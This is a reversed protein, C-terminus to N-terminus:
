EASKTKGPLSRSSAFRIRSTTVAPAGSHATSSRASDSSCSNERMELPSTIHGAQKRIRLEPTDRPRLQADPLHKGDGCDASQKGYGNSVKKRLAFRRGILGMAPRHIKQLEDQGRLRKNESGTATNSAQVANKLFFLLVREVKLSQGPKTRKFESEAFKEAGGNKHIKNTEAQHRKRNKGGHEGM